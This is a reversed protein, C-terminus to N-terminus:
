SRVRAVSVDVATALVEEGVPADVVLMLAELAADLGADDSLAPLPTPQLELEERGAAGAAVDESM